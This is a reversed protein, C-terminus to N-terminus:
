RAQQMVRKQARCSASLIAVAGNGSACSRSEAPSLGSNPRSREQRGEAESPRELEVRIREGGTGLVYRYKKRGTSSRGTKGHGNSSSVQVSVPQARFEE